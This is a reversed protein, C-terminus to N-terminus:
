KRWGDNSDVHNLLNFFGPSIFDKCFSLHFKCFNSAPPKTKIQNFGAGGIETEPINLFSNVFGRCQRAASRSRAKATSSLITSLIQKDNAWSQTLWYFFLILSSMFIWFFNWTGSNIDFINEVQENKEQNLSNEMSDWRRWVPFPAEAFGLQKYGASTSHLLGMLKIM